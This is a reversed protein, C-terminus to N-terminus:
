FTGVSAKMQSLAEQSRSRVYSNEERRLLEQLAGAVDPAKSRALLDIIQTRVGPNDDTLLVQALTKRVEPEHAYSKLADLAKLRVGANADAQLRNLLARRVDADACEDKLLGISEARLGPDSPDNVASLLLGRIEDDSLSGSLERQRVEDYLVRVRGGRDNNLLRVRQLAPPAQEFGAVEVLRSMPGSDPTLRAAFFGLALMAFAGAPRLWMPPNVVWNRWVRALSFSGAAHVRNHEICASLDRRCQALLGSPMEAEGHRDLISTLAEVREREARCGACADLHQELCEEEEFSLEGCCYLALQIRAEECNM